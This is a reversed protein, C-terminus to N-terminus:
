STAVRNEFVVPVTTTALRRGGLRAVAREAARRGIEEPPELASPVRELSFWFDRQMGSADEAVPTCSLSHRTGSASVLLGHSNGLCHVAQGTTITAGDSNRIRPDAGLAAAECRLALEVAEGTELPWPHFLDLAPPDWALLEPDPLGACPDPETHRAIELAARATEEIAPRSLDTTAARGRREGIHAVIVLNRDRHHEVTELEGMRVEVSLGLGLSADAAAATAGGAAALELALAVAGELEQHEREGLVPMTSTTADNM